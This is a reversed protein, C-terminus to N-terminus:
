PDVPIISNDNFLIINSYDKFSVLSDKSLIIRYLLTFCNGLQHVFMAAANMKFFIKSQSLYITEGNAIVIPM